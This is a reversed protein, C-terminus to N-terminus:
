SADRGLEFVANFWLGTAPDPDRRRYGLPELEAAINALEFGARHLHSEISEVVVLRPRQAVLTSRMGRLCLVEAGEVDIKVASLRPELILEGSEVLDDLPRVPVEAVTEGVVFLSRKTADSPDDPDVRLAQTAPEAGLAMERLELRDGVGAVKARAM